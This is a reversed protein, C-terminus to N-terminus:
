SKSRGELGRASAKVQNSRVSSCDRGVNIGRVESQVTKVPRGDRRVRAGGTCRQHARQPNEGFGSRDGPPSHAMVSLPAARASM